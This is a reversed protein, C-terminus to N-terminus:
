RPSVFKGEALLDIVCRSRKVQHKFWNPSVSAQWATTMMPIYYKMGQRARLLIMIHHSVTQVRDCHRITSHKYTTGGYCGPRRRTEARFNQAQGQFLYYSGAILLM